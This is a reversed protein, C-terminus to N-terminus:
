PGSGSVPKTMDAQLEAQTLARDYVRIEDLRGAFWESWVNNGGFRLVGTSNPLTDALARTGVQVGNVFLRQTTGDWTMALHSWTNLPLAATGNTFLDGTTYLHGSPRTLDNNAYLAYVLQGPQEKVMVTRWSGALQSPRVWAELTM